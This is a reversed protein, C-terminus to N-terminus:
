LDMKSFDEFKQEKAIYKSVTSVQTHGTSAMIANIPVNNNLALTIYTRRCTHTSILERKLYKNTILKGNTKVTKQITTELLNHKELVDKIKRNIVQNVYVRLKYDYKELIEKATTTIPVSISTKTKENYKLYFMNDNKMVFEGKDFTSLDSFRLGMLCNLVFLDIIYREKEDYNDYEYLEKLENKTLAITESRHKKIQYTKVKESVSYINNEGLYKFFTKLSTIRKNITNDSMNGRSLYNDPHPHALFDRLKLIFDYTLDSLQLSKKNIHQQYDILVNELSKYDKGSGNGTLEREKLTKFDAYYDLVTKFKIKEVPKEFPLQKTKLYEICDKQQPTLGKELAKSIYYDVDRKQSQINSNLLQYGEKNSKFEVIGNKARCYSKQFRHRTNIRITSGKYSYYIYIYDIGNNNVIKFSSQTKM